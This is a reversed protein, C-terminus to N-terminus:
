RIRAFPEYGYYKPRSDLRVHLWPVGMGATSLWVPRSGLKSLMANGVAQWFDQRQAEPARRVFASLHAYASADALPRPVVLLADKGLNEFTAVREVETLSRFQPAFAAPDAPRELSPADLLVFEFDRHVTEITVPPTEWRFSAYPADALLSNFQARFGTETQWLQIVESYGLVVGARRLRVHTISGRRTVEHTIL